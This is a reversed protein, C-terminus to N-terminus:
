DILGTNLAWIFLILAIFSLITWKLMGVIKVASFKEKDWDTKFLIEALAMLLSIVFFGGIIIFGIGAKM